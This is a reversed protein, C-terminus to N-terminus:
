CNCDTAMHNITTLPRLKDITAKDLGAGGLEEYSQFDGMGERMEIIKDVQEPTLVGLQLLQDKTAANIELRNTVEKKDPDGAFTSPLPMATACLLCLSVAVAFKKSFGLISM